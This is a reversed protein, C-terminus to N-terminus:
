PIPEESALPNPPSGFSKFRDQYLHGTGSTHYHAHWRQTHTHTLWKM